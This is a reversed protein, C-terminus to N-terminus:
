TKDNELVEIRKELQKIKAVCLAIFDNYCLGKVEGERYGAFDDDTLGVADMAAKVDQAIFGTHKGGGKAKDIYEFSVPELNDFLETYKESLPAIDKKVLKDSSSLYSGNVMGSITVDAMISLLGNNSTYTYTYTDPTFTFSDYLCYTGNDLQVRQPIQFETFGTSHSNGSCNISTNYTKTATYSNLEKYGKYTVTVTVPYHESKRVTGEIVASISLNIWYEGVANIVLEGTIPYDASYTTGNTGGGTITTITANPTILNQTEINGYADIVTGVAYDSDPDYSYLGGNQIYFNGIEGMVAYITGNVVVEGDATAYFKGDGVGIGDTGLYVAKVDDDYYQKYTKEDLYESEGASALCSVYHHIKYTDLPNGDTDTVGSFSFNTYVHYSTNLTSFFGVLEDESTVEREGARLTLSFTYTGLSTSESGATIGAFGYELLIKIVIDDEFVDYENKLKASATGFITGSLLGVIMGYEINVDVNVDFFDGNIEFEEYDDRQGIEFGAINGGTATFYGYTNLTFYETKITMGESTISVGSALTGDDNLIGTYFSGDIALSHVDIYDASLNNVLLYNLIANGDSSIDYTYPQNEWTEEDVYDGNSNKKRVKWAFGASSFMYLVTSEAIMPADHLYYITGGDTTDTTVYLGVANTLAEALGSEAIELNDIYNYITRIEQQIHNDTYITSRTKNPTYYKSQTETQYVAEIDTGGNFTVTAEMVYSVWENGGKQYKVTDMPTLYPAPLIKTSYGRYVFYGDNILIKNAVNNLMSQITNYNDDHVTILANDSIDFSNSDNGAVLDKDNDSWVVGTIITDKEYVDAGDYRKSPTSIYEGGEGYWGLKLYGNEDVYANVGMIECAYELVNRRTVDSLDPAKSVIYNLNVCSDFLGNEYPIVGDIATRVWTEVTVNDNMGVMLQDLWRLRDSATIEVQTLPRAAQEVTFWGMGVEEGAATFLVELEKNELEKGDWRGDSNNLKFTLEAFTVNGLEVTSGNIAKRNISLSGLVIDRETLVYQPTVSKIDGVDRVNIIIGTNERDNIFANKADESTKIM